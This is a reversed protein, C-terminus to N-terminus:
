STAGPCDALAHYPLVCMTRHFGEVRDVFGPCPPGYDIEPAFTRDQIEDIAGLLHEVHFTTPFPGATPALGDALVIVPPPLHDTM